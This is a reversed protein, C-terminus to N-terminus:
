SVDEQACKRAFTTTGVLCIEAYFPARISERVLRYHGDHDPEYVRPASNHIALVGGVKLFPAWAHYAAQVGAFSQDGDLFLLDIPASWGMAADTAAGQRVEVFADLGAQEMNVTFQDRLPRPQGDRIARYVAASFADGSADFPDVCYVRGSGRLKRAGALLITGSGLFTGIEVIRAHEPLGYSVRALARAETGRTWGPVHLSRWVYVGLAGWRLRQYLLGLPSTSAEIRTLMMWIWRRPKGRLM